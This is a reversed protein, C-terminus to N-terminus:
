VDAAESTAASAQGVRSAADEGFDMCEEVLEILEMVRFRGENGTSKRADELMNMCKPCNVVLVDLGEIQAAERVRNEAPKEKDTPDPIWIRGGGAGCCFSNDRSRAMEMLDAGLMRLSDRPADYGKNLRGLHCPDHYTVRCSLPRKLRIQGDSLMRRIMVSAHEIEFYGGFDPYENRITNYSHPDTTVIRNFKCSRLTEINSEALHQFLGEEGVRRVDNGANM